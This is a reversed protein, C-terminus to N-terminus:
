RFTWYFRNAATDIRRLWSRSSTPKAQLIIAALDDILEPNDGYYSHGILSTDVHSVDITDIGDVVVIGDGALGARDHGHVGASVMLARDRSSAYLTVHDSMQRIVNSYRQRFDNASVDPAAMVIQGFRTATQNQLALRDLAQMLVRNGMSHAILHIKDAQSNQFLSGLFDQLHIVSWDANAMDRTYDELGGRSPWSYCIPTGQFKVDHSIQATRKVANNFSVNYGHIFILAENSGSDLRENLQNFFDSVDTRAIKELVVHKEPDETLEFRTISPSEVIGTQHNPPISVLCRGYDLSEPAGDSITLSDTDASPIKIDHTYWIDGNDKITSRQQWEIWGGYGLVLCAISAVAAILKVTQRQYYSGILGAILALLGLQFAWGFVRWLDGKTFAAVRKRDTAYFVEVKTSQNSLTSATDTTQEETQESVAEAPTITDSKAVAASVPAASPANPKVAVDNAQKEAGGWSHRARSVTRSTSKTKESAANRQAAPMASAAARPVPTPSAAPELKVASSAVPVAESAFAEEAAEKNLSTEATIADNWDAAETTEEIELEAPAPESRAMDARPGGCGVALVISIIGLTLLPLLKCCRGAVSSRTLLSRDVNSGIRNKHARKPM